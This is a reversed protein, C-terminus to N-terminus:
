ARLAARHHDRTRHNRGNIGAALAFLEAEEDEKDMGTRPGPWKPATDMRVPHLNGASSRVSEFDMPDPLRNQAVLQKWNSELCWAEAPHHGNKPKKGLKFVIRQGRELRTSDSTRTFEVGNPGFSAVRCSQAHVWVTNKGDLTKAFCYNATNFPDQVIGVQLKKGIKM